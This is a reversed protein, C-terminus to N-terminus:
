IMYLPICPLFNIEWDIWDAGPSPVTVSWTMGEMVPIVVTQWHGTECSMKTITSGDIIVEIPEAVGSDSRANVIIWGSTNALQDTDRSIGSELLSYDPAGMKLYNLEYLSDSLYIRYCDLLDDSWEQRVIINEPGISPLYVVGEGDPTAVEGDGIVVGTVGGDKERMKGLFKDFIM